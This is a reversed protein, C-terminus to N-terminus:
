ANNEVSTPNLEKRLMELTIRNVTRVYPGPGNKFRVILPEVGYLRLTDAYRAEIQDPKIASGLAKFGGAAKVASKLAEAKSEAGVVIVHARPRQGNTSGQAYTRCLYAPATM